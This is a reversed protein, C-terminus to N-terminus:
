FKAQDIEIQQLDTTIKFEALNVKVEETWEGSTAPHKWQATCFKYLMETKDRTTLYHLYNLRRAKIITKIDLM